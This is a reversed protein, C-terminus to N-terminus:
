EFAIQNGSIKFHEKAQELLQLDGEKLYPDYCLRATQEAYSKEVKHKNQKACDFSIKQKLSISREGQRGQILLTFDELKEAKGVLILPKKAFLTELQNTLLLPKQEGTGEEVVQVILNKAIPNKLSHVLRVLKRPFSAHTDSYLLSGNACNSLIDLPLLNNKVGIAATYLSIKGQNNAVFDQLSLRQKEQSLSSKGDTFLIATHQKDDLPTKNFLEELSSYLDSSSFFSGLSQANLFTEISPLMKASIAVPHESFKKIKQDILFINFEDGEELAACTKLVAKKFTDFRHREIHASRDIIFYFIQKIPELLSTLEPHLEITFLYGTEDPNKTWEVGTTFREKDEIVVRNQVPFNEEKQLSIQANLQELHNPELSSSSLEITRKLNPIDSFLAEQFFKESGIVPLSTTLFVPSKEEIVEKFLTLPPVQLQKAVESKPSKRALLNAPLSIQKFLEHAASQKKKEVTENCLTQVTTKGLFSSITHPFYFPAKYLYFSLSFHFLLSLSLCLFLLSRCSTTLSFLRKKSM